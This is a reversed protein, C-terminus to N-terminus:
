SFESLTSQQLPRRIGRYYDPDVLKQFRREWEADDLQPKNPPLEALALSRLYPDRPM